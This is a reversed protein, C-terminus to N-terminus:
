AISLMSCSSCRRQMPAGIKLASPVANAEMLTEPGSCRIEGPRIGSIAPFTTLVARSIEVREPQGGLRSSLSRFIAPYSRNISM